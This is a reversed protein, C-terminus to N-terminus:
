TGHSGELIQALAELHPKMSRYMGTAQGALGRVIGGLRLREGQIAGEIM